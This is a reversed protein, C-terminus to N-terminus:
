QQRDTRVKVNIYKVGWKTAKAHSPFFLDLRNGSERSLAASYREGGRNAPAVTTGRRGDSRIAGSRALLQWAASVTTPSLMLEQAVQRIPPLRDGPALVGDRIAVSVAHALGKSTPSELREELGSLVDRM